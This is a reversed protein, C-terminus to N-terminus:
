KKNIHNEYYYSVIEDIVEGRRRFNLAIKLSGIKELTDKNLWDSFQVKGSEKLADRIKKQSKKLVELRDSM